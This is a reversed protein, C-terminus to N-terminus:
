FEPKKDKACLRRFSAFFQIAAFNLSIKLCTFKSSDSCYFVLTMWLRGSTMRDVFGVLAVGHRQTQSM